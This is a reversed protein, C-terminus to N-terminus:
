SLDVPSYHEVTPFPDYFHHLLDRWQQYEKSGRFGETHDELTEWNVLLLYRSEQEICHRLEHSIYGPMAKIIEQAQAFAREFEAEMGPKVDLTAVELIM